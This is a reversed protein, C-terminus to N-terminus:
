RPPRSSRPLVRCRLLVASSSARQAGVPLVSLIRKVGREALQVSEIDELQQLSAISCWRVWNPATSILESM